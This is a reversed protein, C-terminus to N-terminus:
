RVGDHGSTLGYRVLLQQYEATKKYAILEREFNAMLEELEPRIAFALYLQGSAFRTADMGIQEDLHLTRILYLGVATDMLALDVRGRVLKKMNMEHNIGPERSFYTASMFNASYNYGRVVAVRKGRLSSLGSFVFPESKRYFLSNSTTSLEEKPFLLFSARENSKGKSIDLIADVEGAKLQVQARPWPVFHIQVQYGLKALVRTALEVDMGCAKDGCEYVYPPWSETALQLVRPKQTDAAVGASCLFLTLLLWLPPILLIRLLRNTM